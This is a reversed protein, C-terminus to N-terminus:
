QEKADLRILLSVITMLPLVVLYAAMNTRIRSIRSHTLTMAPCALM